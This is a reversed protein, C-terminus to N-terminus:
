SYWVPYTHLLISLLTESWQTCAQTGLLVTWTALLQFCGVRGDPHTSWCSMHTTGLSYWEAKLLLFGRCRSRYPHLKLVRHRPFSALWLSETTGRVQPTQLLQFWLCLPCRRHGPAPSPQKIPASNRIQLSLEPLRNWLLKFTSLESSCTCITWFTLPIHKVVIFLKGHIYNKRLVAKGWCCYKKLM